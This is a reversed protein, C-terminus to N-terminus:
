LALTVASSPNCGSPSFLSRDFSPKATATVAVPAAVALGFARPVQAYVAGYVACIGNVNAAPAGDGAAFSRSTKPAAYGEILSRLM